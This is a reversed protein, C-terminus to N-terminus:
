NNLYLFDIFLRKSCNKDLVYRNQYANIEATPHHTIVLPLDTTFNFQPM